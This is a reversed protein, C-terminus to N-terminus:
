IIKELYFMLWDLFTPFALKEEGSGGNNMSFSIMNQNGLFYVNGMEDLPYWEGWFCQFFPLGFSEYFPILTKPNVDKGDLTLVRERASTMGQLRQYLKLMEKTGIIGTCDTTKWFGNHIRLFAKYDSPLIYDPFQQQLEVIMEESAPSGGRYFGTNDKMSYVLCAHLPDDYNKQTVFVGIDDLSDFFHLISESVGEKYPLKSLWFERIFDIRDRPSLHCLEYWGKTLCPVQEALTEWDIDPGEHLAIVRHFSGSPNDDTRQKFFENIHTNM